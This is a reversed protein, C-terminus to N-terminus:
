LVANLAIWEKRLDAKKPHFILDLAAALKGDDLKGSGNANIRKLEEVAPLEGFSLDYFITIKEPTIVLQSDHDIGHSGLPHGFGASSLGTIVIILALSRLLKIRSNM